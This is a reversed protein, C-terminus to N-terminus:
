ELDSLSHRAKRQSPYKPPLTELVLRFDLAIPAFVSPTAIAEFEVPEQVRNTPSQIESRVDSERDFAGSVPAALDAQTRQIAEARHTVFADAPSGRALNRPWVRRYEVLHRAARYKSEIQRASSVFSDQSNCMSLATQKALSRSKLTKAGLTLANQRPQVKKSRITRAVGHRREDSVKMVMAFTSALHDLSPRDRSSPLADRFLVPPPPPIQPRDHLKSPSVSPSSSKLSLMPPPSFTWKSPSHGGKLPSSHGEHHQSETKRPSPTPSVNKRPSQSNERDVQKKIRILLLEIAGSVANALDEQHKSSIECHMRALVRRNLMEWNILKQQFRGTSPYNHVQVWTPRLQALLEAVLVADSFDRAPHKWARSFVFGDLWEYLGHM